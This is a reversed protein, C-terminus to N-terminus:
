LCFEFLLFIDSIKSISKVDELSIKNPFTVLDWTSDRLESIFNTGWFRLGVGSSCVRIYLKFFSNCDSIPDKIKLIFHLPVWLRNCHEKFRNLINKSCFEVLTMAWLEDFTKRPPSIEFSINDPGRIKLFFISSGMLRLSPYVEPVSLIVPFYISM